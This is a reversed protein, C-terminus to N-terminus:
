VNFRLNRDPAFGAERLENFLASLEEKTEIQQPSQKPIFFIPKDAPDFGASYPNAIEEGHWVLKGGKFGEENVNKNIDNIIVNAFYHLNGKDKDLGKPNGEGKVFIDQARRFGSAGGSRMYEAVKGSITAAKKMQNFKIIKNGVILPRLNVDQNVKPAICFLDYDATIPKQISESGDSEPPNTLVKVPVGNYERVINDPPEISFLVVEDHYTASFLNDKIKTMAGNDLANDIQVQSLSLDVLKSGKIQAEAIYGEQKEWQSSPMKSYKAKEAIFGATPGSSSSKAKVHFNKTPYGEKLHIQGLESPSRLGIVVGYKDATKQLSESFMLTEAVFEHGIMEVKSVTSTMNLKSNKDTSEFKLRPLLDSSRRENLTTKEAKIDTSFPAAVKKTEIAELPLLDSKNIEQPITTNESTKDQSQILTDKSMSISPTEIETSFIGKVFINKYQPMDQRASNKNLTSESNSLFTNPTQHTSSIRSFDMKAKSMREQKLAGLFQNRVLNNVLIRPM